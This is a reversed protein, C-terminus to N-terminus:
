FVYSLNVIANVKKLDIIGDRECLTIFKQQYGPNPLIISAREIEFILNNHLRWEREHMWDVINENNDLDLKVIRWWESEKLISKAVETKEYFVPRCGKSYLYKIQFMLGCAEYRNGKSQNENTMGKEYWINFGVSQLPADQFCVAPTSGCIFGSVTTSGYIIRETLMKYLVEYHELENTSRTLHVLYQSLDSRSMRRNQWDSYKMIEVWKRM